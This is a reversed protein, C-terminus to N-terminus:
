EKYKELWNNTKKVCNSVLDCLSKGEIAIRSIKDNDIPMNALDHILINREEIWADLADLVSCPFRQRISKSTFESRSRLKAIKRSIKDEKGERSIYTVGAHKLVSRLRDEIIAYEIFIAEFYFANRLAKNLAVKMDKYTRQKDVNLEM